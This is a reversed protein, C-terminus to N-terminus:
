ELVEIVFDEQFLYGNCQYGTINGDEDTHIKKTSELYELIQEPTKNDFDRSNQITILPQNTAISKIIVTM